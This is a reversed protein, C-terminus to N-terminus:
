RARAARRKRANELMWAMGGFLLIAMIIGYFAWITSKGATFGYNHLGVGLFNVHWWSFTVIVATFLSALHLGWERLFGGLRAHLIALTWLVIMLAGNEKPDWGWFRGWSDNAWIGGLVTGILSLFLTFCILGYVTRTLIRRLEKNEDALRLGCILVFMASVFAAFYGAAYGYTITIVHTTLWFNSDLVAVLPDMHDSGDGLEFRRALLILATGIIPALGLAFRRRTLWEVVFALLVMTTAIFIITDYLNGVPPRQMIICRKVIAIICYVLGATTSALTIWSAARATRSIGMLWMLLASLTGILFWVLAYLFWNIHYYAAELSLRSGEGRSLARDTFRKKMEGIAQAFQPDASAGLRAAREISQVDAVATKPEHATGNMTEMIANGVSQWPSRDPTTPPILFLGFKSFNSVDLVQQLLSQMHPENVGGGQMQSRILPATAMIASTEARQDPTTDNGSGVLTIGNRAFTFYGLLSEYSAVNSGLTVIQNEVPDRKKAERQSYSQYLEGLKARAPQLDAYSYRDRKGRPVLGIAEIAASNDVRFTPHHIALSPRFLTDLLWHMPQLKHIIGDEGIIKMSRAGHLSLMRFGAYTSLPKVRGGDQIPISEAAAIVEDAWPQYGPITVTKGKPMNDIVLLFLAASLGLIALIVAAWRGTRPASDAM